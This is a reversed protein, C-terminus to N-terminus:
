DGLTKREGGKKEGEYSIKTRYWSESRVAAGKEVTSKADTNKETAYGERLYWM